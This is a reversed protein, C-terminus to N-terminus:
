PSVGVVSPPVAFPQRLDIPFGAVLYLAIAAIVCLGLIKPWSGSEQRLWALSAVAGVGLAVVLVALSLASRLGIRLYLTTPVISRQTIAPLWYDTLPSAVSAPAMPNAATVILMLAASAAALLAFPLRWRPLLFVIPAVAFPLCALLYRPGPVGGLQDYYMWALLFFGASIAAFLLAEVRLARRRLMAVFGPAVLLMLPSLTLLGRPGITITWLGALTPLRPQALNLGQVTPSFVYSLRLPEGFAVTNYALLALAAPALGVLYLVLRRQDRLGALAYLALLAAIAATPYETLAALGALLGAGFLFLAGRSGAENQQRVRWLLYFAAFSLAASTMHGLYLGAFPLALTGLAFAVALALAAREDGGAERLWRLLLLALLATPWAVAFSNLVYIPYGLWVDPRDVPQMARLAAYAPLSIFSLGPAKDTYWHGQWYSKDVTNEHYRDITLTGEEVIARVLNFRSNQNVNPYQVFFSYVTLVVFFFVTEIKRM